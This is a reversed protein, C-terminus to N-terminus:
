LPTFMVHPMTQPEIHILACHCRAHRTLPNSQRIDQLVGSICQPWVVSALASKGSMVLATMRRTLLSNQLIAHLPCKLGLSPDTHGTRKVGTTLKVSVQNNHWHLELSFSADHPVAWAPNVLQVDSRHLIHRILGGINPRPMSRPELKLFLTDDAIAVWLSAPNSHYGVRLM